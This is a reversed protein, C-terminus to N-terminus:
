SSCTWSSANANRLNARLQNTQLANNYATIAAATNTTLAPVAVDPLVATTAGPATAASQALPSSTQAPDFWWCQSGRLIFGSGGIYRPMGWEAYTAGSPLNASAASIGGGNLTVRAGNLANIADWVPANFALSLNTANLEGAVWFAGYFQRNATYTVNTATLVGGAQVHIVHGSNANPVARSAVIQASDITVNGGQAVWIGENISNLTLNGTIQMEGGSGAIILGGPNSGDPSLSVNQVTARGGNLAWVRGATANSINVRSGQSALFWSDRDFNVGRVEITGPLFIFEGASQDVNAGGTGEFAITGNTRQNAFSSADQNLYGATISYNGNAMIIRMATPQRTRYFDLAALLSSPASSSQGNGTGSPSVFWTIERTNLERSEEPGISRIIPRVIANPATFRSTSSSYTVSNCSPVPDNRTRAALLWGLLNANASVQAYAPRGGVVYNIGGLGAVEISYSVANTSPVSVVSAGTETGGFPCYVIPQGFPTQALHELNAPLIYSTGSVRGAPLYALGTGNPSRASALLSNVASEMRRVTETRSHLETAAAINETANLALFTFVALTAIGIIFWAIM